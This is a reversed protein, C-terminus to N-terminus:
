QKNNQSLFYSNVVKQIMDNKIDENTITQISGLIKNFKQNELEKEFYFKKTNMSSNLVTIMHSIIGELLAGLGGSIIAGLDKDLFICILAVIFSSIAVIKALSLVTSILEKMSNIEQQHYQESINSNPLLSRRKYDDLWADTLVNDKGNDVDDVSLQVSLSLKDPLKFENEFIDTLTEKNNLEPLESIQCKEPLLENKPQDAM